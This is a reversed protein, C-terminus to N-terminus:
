QRNEDLCCALYLDGNCMSLRILNELHHPYKTNQEIRSCQEITRKNM